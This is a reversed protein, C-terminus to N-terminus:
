RGNTWTYDAGNTHMHVLNVTTSFALFEESTICNPLQGGRKEHARIICNFDEILAWPILSNSLQLLGIWLRRRARHSTNGYVGNIM